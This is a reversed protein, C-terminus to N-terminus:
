VMNDGHMLSHIVLISADEPIRRFFHILIRETVTLAGLATNPVRGDIISRPTNASSAILTNHLWNTSRPPKHM